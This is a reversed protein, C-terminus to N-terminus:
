DYHPRASGQVRRREAGAALREQEKQVVYKAGVAVGGGLLGIYTGVVSLCCLTVLGFFALGSILNEGYSFCM